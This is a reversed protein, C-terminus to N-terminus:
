EIIAKKNGDQFRLDIQMDKKLEKAKTIPVGEKEVLCYGRTLTKLPSLTDLKTIWQMAYLKCDKIKREILNISVEINTFNNRYNLLASKLEIANENTFNCYNM